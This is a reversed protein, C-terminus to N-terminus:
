LVDWEYFNSAENLTFGMKPYLKNGVKNNKGTELILGCADTDKALEKAREILRISVGKGRSDPDVFLDNLLWLRKM